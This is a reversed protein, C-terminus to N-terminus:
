FQRTDNKFRHYLDDFEAAMWELAEVSEIDNMLQQRLRRITPLYQRIVVQEEELANQISSPSLDYRELVVIEKQAATIRRDVERHTIGDERAFRLAEELDAVIAILHARACATCGTAIDLEGNSTDRNYTSAVSRVIGKDYTYQRTGCGCATNSLIVAGYHGTRTNVPYIHINPTGTKPLSFVGVQTGSWMDGGLLPGLPLVHSDVGPYLLVAYYTDFDGFVSPDPLFSAFVCLVTMELTNPSDFRYLLTIAKTAPSVKELQTVPYLTSCYPSTTSWDQTRYYVM